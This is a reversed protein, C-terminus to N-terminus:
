EYMRRSQVKDTLNEVVLASRAILLVDDHDPSKVLAKRFIKIMDSSMKFGAVEALREVCDPLMGGGLRKEADAYPCTDEYQAVRVYM